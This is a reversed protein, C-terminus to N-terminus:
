FSIEDFIQEVSYPFFIIPNELVKQSKEHGFHTFIQSFPVSFSRIIGKAREKCLLWKPGAGNRQSFFPKTGEM